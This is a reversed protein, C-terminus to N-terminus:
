RMFGWFLQGVVKYVVVAAAVSDPRLKNSRKRELNGRPKLMERVPAHVGCM